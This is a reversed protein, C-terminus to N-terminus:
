RNPLIVTFTVSGDRSEVSVNGDHLEVIRRVIALGVGNGETTHSEDAQYFKNWIKKQDEESIESGTNRVDVRIRSVSKDIRVEM